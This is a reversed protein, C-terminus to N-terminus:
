DGELESYNIFAPGLTSRVHIYMYIGEASVEHFSAELYSYNLDQTSKVQIDSWLLRTPPCLPADWTCPYYVADSILGM